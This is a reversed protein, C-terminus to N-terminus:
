CLLRIYPIFLVKGCPLHCKECPESRAQQVSPLSQNKLPHCTKTCFHNGCPLPNGCLNECSFLTKDSCVMQYSSCVFSLPHPCSSIVFDLKNSKFHEALLCLGNEGGWHAPWCMVELCTRPLSPMSFWSYM